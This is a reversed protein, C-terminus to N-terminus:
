HFAPVQHLYSDGHPVFRVPPGPPMQTPMMLVVLVPVMVLLILLTRLKDRPKDLWWSLSAVIALLGIALLLALVPNANAFWWAGASVPPGLALVILLTRLRFRM